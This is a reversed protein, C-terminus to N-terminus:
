VLSVVGDSCIVETAPVNDFADDSFNISMWQIVTGDFVIESLGACGNFANSGISIISSPITVSTLSTCRQFAMYEITTISDPIDVSVLGACWNFAGDEISTVSDPIVVSTLSECCQFAYQGISTVSEPIHVSMLGTCENFAYNGITTVFDPIVVSTLSTCAGFADDGIITVSDPIKPITALNANLYFMNKCLKVTDIGNVGTKIAGYESKNKDICKVEYGGLDDKYIYVYDNDAAVSTSGIKFATQLENCFIETGDLSITGTLTGATESVVTIARGDVSYTAGSIFGSPTEIVDMTGDERIFFSENQGFVPVYATYPQNYYFSHENLEPEVVSFSGSASKNESVVTIDYSDANLTKLYDIPLTVITSGEELTYNSPDVTVGNVQVEKLEDLPATSRFTLAAPALTFYEQGDGELTEESSANSLNRLVEELDAVDDAVENSDISYETGGVVVKKGAGYISGLHSVFDNTADSLKASDISYTTGDFSITAGSGNMDTSLYSKFSEEIASLNSEDISYDKSNFYINVKAM